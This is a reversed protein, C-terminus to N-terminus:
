PARFRYFRAPRNSWSADSFYALGGVLTNTAVPKWGSKLLNTCAEVVVSINPTGAITFGFQKSQLGFTGNNTVQPNWLVPTLGAFSSWDASWPGPLYYITPTNGEYFLYSGCVPIDGEFYLNALSDCYAFAEDGINTVSGPIALSVLHTCGNFADEAISTVSSPIAVNTLSSCDGFTEDGIITVGNPITISALSSCDQFAEDSIGIVSAPITISAMNHCDQFAANGINTIGPQITVSILNTSGFFARYGITTVPMSLASNPVTLTSDSGGFAIISLTTNDANTAFTFEQAPLMAPLALLMAALMTLGDPRKSSRM